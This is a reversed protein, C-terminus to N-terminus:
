VYLGGAPSFETSISLQPWSHLKTWEMGPPQEPSETVQSPKDAAIFCTQSLEMFTETKM